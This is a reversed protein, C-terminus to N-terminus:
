LSLLWEVKSTKKACVPCTLYSLTQYEPTDLNARFVSRCTSRPCELAMGSNDIGTSLVDALDRGFEAIGEMMDSFRQDKDFLVRAHKTAIQAALHRLRDGMPGLPTNAYVSQVATPFEPDNWATTATAQFKEEATRKLNDNQIRDALAYVDVHFLLPHKDQDNPTILEGNRQAEVNDMQDHPASYDSTYLFELMAAIIAPNDENM